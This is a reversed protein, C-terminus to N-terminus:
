ATVEAHLPRMKAIVLWALAAGRVSQELMDAHLPNDVGVECILPGFVPGKFKDGNAQVWKFVDAIGRNRQDLMALRRGKVSQREQLKGACRM